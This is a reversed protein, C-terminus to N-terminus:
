PSWPRLPAGVPPLSWRWVGTSLGWERGCWESKFYRPSYLPVLVQAEALARMMTAQWDAGAPIEADIFGTASPPLDTLNSIETSLDRFFRLELDDDVTEVSPLHAYSLYFLPAQAAM